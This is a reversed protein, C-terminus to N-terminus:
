ETLLCYAFFVVCFGGYCHALWKGAVSWLGGRQAAVAISVLALGYALMTSEVVRRMKRPAKADMLSGAAMAVMVNAAGLFRMMTTLGLKAVASLPAAGATGGITVVGKTVLGKAAAAGATLALAENVVFFNAATLPHIVTALAAAIAGAAIIALGFKKTRSTLPKPPQVKPPEPDAEQQTITSTSTATTTTTQTKLHAYGGSRAGSRGGPARLSAAAAAHLGRSSLTATTAAANTVANPRPAALRRSSSAKTAIRVPAKAASSHLLSLAQM